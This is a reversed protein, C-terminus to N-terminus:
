TTRYGAKLQAMRIAGLVGATDGLTSPVIECNTFGKFILWCQSRMTKSMTDLIWEVREALGGVIVIKEPQITYVINSALRGLIIGIRELVSLAVPDHAKAAEFVMPCTLAEPQNGCLDKLVTDKGALLARRAHETIGPGSVLCDVCGTAGCNCPWDDDSVVSHGFEAFLNDPGEYVKGDLILGAGIGTGWTILAFRNCTRGTGVWQEGWSAVVTDVDAVIPVSYRQYLFQTISHGKLFDFDPGFLITGDHRSVIAPVGIGIGGLSNVPVSGEQLAEEVAKGIQQYMDPASGRRYARKVFYKFEPGTGTVAVRMNTKGIDIGLFHKEM